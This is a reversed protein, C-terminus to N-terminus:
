RSGADVPMVEPPAFPELGVHEVPPGERLLRAVAELQPAPLSACIADVIHVYPSALEALHLRLLELASRHDALVRQGAGTPGVAAFELIVPLFDPLEPTDLELGAARYLRKLALLAQGRKRTDGEDFFTLYLSSRKQLDFTEVYARQLEGAPAAGFWKWFAELASREASRPLARIAHELDPRAALVAEDPYRLLVSLLEYPPRRM